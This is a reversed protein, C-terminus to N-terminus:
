KQAVVMYPQVTWSPVLGAKVYPDGAAFAEIESKPVGPAWIFLAGSVPDGTAGAMAMKGAAVAAKAAAIHEARYPGRKELIDPVYAYSLLSFTPPPPPASAPDAAASAQMRVSNASHRRAAPLFAIFSPTQVCISRGYTSLAATAAARHTASARASSLLM